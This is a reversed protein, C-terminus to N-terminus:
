ETTYPSIQLIQDVTVFTYGQKRLDRIIRPLAKVTASRNGGGNHQLIISGNQAHNIVSAYVEHPTRGPKWDLTDVDWNIITFQLTQIQDTVGKAAGYPPRFLLMNKGTIEYVVHNTKELDNRLANKSLKPLYEHQWSHSGLVHGEQVIRQIMAPYTKALTGLIFFTAPINEQKLINLIQPTYMQEPGDDFTLAIQKKQRSGHIAIPKNLIARLEKLEQTQKQEETWQKMQQKKRQSVFQDQKHREIQQSKESISQTNNPSAPTELSCGTFIFLIFINFM